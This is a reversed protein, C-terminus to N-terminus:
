EIEEIYGNERQKFKRTFINQEPTEDTIEQVFINNSIKTWKNVNKLVSNLFDFNGEFLRLGSILEGKNNLVFLDICVLEFSCNLNILNTFESNLNCCVPFISNKIVVKKPPNSSWDEIETPTTTRFQNIGSVAKKISGKYYYAKQQGIFSNFMKISITDKSEVLLDTFTAKDYIQYSCKIDKYYKILSTSNQSYSCSNEFLILIVLMKVIRNLMTINMTHLLKLRMM